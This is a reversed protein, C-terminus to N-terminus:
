QWSAPAGASRTLCSVLCGPPRSYCRWRDWCGCQFSDTAVSRSVLQDMTIVNSVPQSADLARVQAKITQIFRAPDSSTRVVVNMPLYANQAHPIFVEPAPETKLGYYRLDETVGVVEYAYKGRNYDLM